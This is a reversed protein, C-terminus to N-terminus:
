AQGYYALREPLSPQAVEAGLLSSLLLRAKTANLWQGNLLGKSQLDIESGPFGYTNKFIPGKNVRSCLIVPMELTLQALADVLKEQLHGVGAAEIIAGEYGLSPLAKILDDESGLGVKIIAVKAFRKPKIPKDFPNLQRIFHVEGEYFYGLPGSQISEFSSLLFKHNKQVERAAHIEDNLCVLTGMTKAKPSAAVRIAAALNAPGDASLADAGRMAGTVVVAQQVGTLLDLLYSTEDITDTGQVIVTGASRSDAEIQQAIKLIDEPEISPGPKLFPTQVDLQLEDDLGPILRILDAGTLKPTIGKQKDTNDASSMTITGGLVIVTVQPRAM